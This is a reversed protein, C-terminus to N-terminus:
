RLPLRRVRVHAGDSTAVAGVVLGDAISDIITRL